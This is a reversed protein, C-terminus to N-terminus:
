KAIDGDTCHVTYAGTDLDWNTDKQLAEWEAMTGDFVIHTLSACKWFLYGSLKPITKPIFVRYLNTCGSFGETIGYELRNPLIISTLSTCDQFAYSGIYTVTNPLKVKKLNKCRAFASSGVRNMGEGLTISELQLDGEFASNWVGDCWEYGPPNWADYNVLVLDTDTCTGMGQCQGNAYALGKSSKRVWIPERGWKDNYWDLIQCVNNSLTEPITKWLKADENVAPLPIQTCYSIFKYSVNSKSMAGNVLANYRATLEDRKYIALLDFLKNGKIWLNQTTPTFAFNYYSGYTLDLDYPTFFWKTGDYTSLLYNHAVGDENNILYSFALYDIASDIDLYQSIVTDIDTGDSNMVARILTNLSALVESESFSDSSYELDFGNEATAEAWFREPDGGNTVEACLIAEKTGSGMGMMWGDKPINFNYVGQWEGNIVVFCPFGDVAGCNPLASLTTVLDSPKRSRVIEGWLKASVVNRCHSFDVWDGKLCYKNQVGWGEKAEFANDFKVTYNKKPYNLSSSGQWKLTCTGSRDGYIYDLTVANEKNMATIDGEFYITPLPYERANFALGRFIDAIPVDVTNGNQLTLILKTGDESVTAGVVVSELPLDIEAESMVIGNVDDIAINIKFNNPNVAARITKALREPKYTGDDTLTAVKGVDTSPVFGIVTFPDVFICDIFNEATTDTVSECDDLTVADCATVYECDQILKARCDIVDTFGQIVLEDGKAGTIYCQSGLYFFKLALPVGQASEFTCGRFELKEISNAINIQPIGDGNIFNNLNLETFDVNLFLYSKLNTNAMGNLVALATEQNAVVDWPSYRDAELKARDAEAEARDAEGSADMYFEEATNASTKANEEALKAAALYQEILEFQSPSVSPSIYANGRNIPLTASTTALVFETGPLIGVEDGGETVGGSATTILFQVTVKGAIQTIAKDLTLQWANVTVGDIVLGKDGFAEVVGMLYHYNEERVGDVYRPYIKIGNPLTFTASVVSNAPFPAILVIKNVGVSGQNITEPIAATIEGAANSLFIM